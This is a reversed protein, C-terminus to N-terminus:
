MRLCIDLWQIHLIIYYVPFFYKFSARLFIYELVEWRPEASVFRVPIWSSAPKIGPRAYHTLSGTNGHATIYTVSAARIQCQQAIAYAPQRVELEVGLRPVEMHWLHPGLEGSFSLFSACLPPWFFFFFFFLFFSLFFIYELSYNEGGGLKELSGLFLIRLILLTVM